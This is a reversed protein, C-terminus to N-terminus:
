QFMILTGYALLVKSYKNIKFIIILKSLLIINPRSVGIFEQASLSKTATNGRKTLTSAYIEMMQVSFQGFLNWNPLLCISFIHKKKFFFNWFKFHQTQTFFLHLFVIIM